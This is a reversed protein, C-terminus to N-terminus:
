YNAGDVTPNFWSYVLSSIAIHASPADTYGNSWPGTLITLIYDGGPTYVIGADHSYGDLDATKHAIKTDSPVGQPIRNNVEQALLPDLLMSLVAPSFETGEYLTEFFLAVDTASTTPYDNVLSTSIFGAENIAPLPADDAGILKRLARGCPNDSYSLTRYLCEQVTVADADFGTAALPEIQGLDIQRAVEYSAFIKYLSASVFTTTGNITLVEGTQLDKVLIAMDVGERQIIEQIQPELGNLFSVEEVPEPEEEEDSNAVEPGVVLPAVGTDRAERVRSYAASFAFINILFVGAILLFVLLAAHHKEFNKIDNLASM